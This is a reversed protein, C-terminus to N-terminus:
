SAASVMQMSSSSSLAFARDEEEEGEACCRPANAMGAVVFTPPLVAFLLAGKGDDDDDDDDDDDVDDPNIGTDPLPHSYSVKSRVSSSNICCAMEMNSSLPRSARNEIGTDVRVLKRRSIIKPYWM